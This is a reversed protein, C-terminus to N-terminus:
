TELPQESKASGLMMSGFPVSWFKPQFLPLYIVQSM